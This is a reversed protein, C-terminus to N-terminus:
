TPSGYGPPIGWGNRQQSSLCMMSYESVPAFLTLDRSKPAMVFCGSDSLSLSLSVQNDASPLHCILQKSKLVTSIHAPRTPDLQTTKSRYDEWSQNLLRKDVLYVLVAGGGVMGVLGALWVSQVTHTPPHTPPPLLNPTPPLYHTVVNHLLGIHCFELRRMHPTPAVQMALGWKLDRM